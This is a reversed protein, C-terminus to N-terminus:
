PYSIQSDWCIIQGAFDPMGALPQIWQLLDETRLGDNRALVDVEIESLRTGNLFIESRHTCRIEWISHIKLNLLLPVLRSEHPKGEWICPRIIEGTNWEFGRRITHRKIGKTIGYNEALPLTYRQEATKVDTGKAELFNLLQEVFYTLQGKKPHHAPYYRTFSLLKNM